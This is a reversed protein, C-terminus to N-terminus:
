WVVSVARAMKSPVRVSSVVHNAVTQYTVLWFYPTLANPFSRRAQRSLQSVVPELSHM